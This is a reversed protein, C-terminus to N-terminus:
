PLVPNLVFKRQPAVGAAEFTEDHTVFGPKEITLRLKVRMPAHTKGLNFKGDADSATTAPESLGPSSDPETLTIKAGEIPSDDTRVVSGSVSSHGDCGCFAAGGFALLAIALPQRSLRSM